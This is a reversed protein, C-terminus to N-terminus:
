DLGQRLFFLPLSSFLSHPFFFPLLSSLFLLPLSLLFPSPFFVPLCLPPGALSEAILWLLHGAYYWIRQEIPLSPPSVLFIFAICMTSYSKSLLTLQVKFNRIPFLANTEMSSQHYPPQLSPEASVAGASPGPETRLVWILSESVAAQFVLNLPTWHGRVEASMQVWMTGMFEHLCAYM